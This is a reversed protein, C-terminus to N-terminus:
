HSIAGSLVDAIPHLDGAPNRWQERGTGPERYGPANRWGLIWLEALRQARRKNTGLVHSIPRPHANGTDLVQHLQWADHRSPGGKGTDYGHSWLEYIRGDHTTQNIDTWRLHSKWPM